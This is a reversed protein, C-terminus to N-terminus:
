NKKMDNQWLWCFIGIIILYKVSLPRMHYKFALYNQNDKLKLKKQRTKLKFEKGLDSMGAVQYDTIM